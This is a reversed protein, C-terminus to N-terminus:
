MDLINRIPIVVVLIKKTAMKTSITALAVISPMTAVQAALLTSTIATLQQINAIAALLQAAAQVQIVTAVM